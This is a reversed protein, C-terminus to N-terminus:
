NGFTSALISYIGEELTSDEEESNEDDRTEGTEICEYIFSSSQTQNMVSDTCIIEITPSYPLEDGHIEIKQRPQGNDFGTMIYLNFGNFDIYDRIKLKLTQGVKWRVSTDDVYIILNNSCVEGEVYLIALNTGQELTTYANLEDTVGRSIGMRASDTVPAEEPVLGDETQIMNFMNNLSYTTLTSNITVNNDETRIVDIGYGDTISATDNYRSVFDNVKNNIEEILATLAEQDSLGAGGLLTELYAVRRSVSSVSDMGYLLTELETVRNQLKSIESQQKNFIDITQQLKTMDDIYEQFKELLETNNGFQETMNSTPYADLKIDVKLAFSNGGNLNTTKHKPYRQIYDDSFEELFLIGYLNTVSEGTSNNTFTYYILVCNFEFDDPSLENMSMIDGYGVSTNTYFSDRFDIIYGIDGTYTNEDGPEDESTDSKDYMAQAPYDNPAQSSSQGIIYESSLSYNGGNYNDDTVSAFRVEYSSGVTSPIHLYVESYVDGGIEVTNVVDIEGIYKIVRKKVYESHNNEMDMPDYSLDGCKEYYLNSERDATEFEIGGAKRFWNFFVRESVTRLVDNNYDDDDGEGKLIATEFNFVYNQLCVPIAKNPNEGSLTDSETFRSFDLSGFNPFDLCAFHSFKFSYSENTMVRALDRQASPFTYLTGGNSRINSLLPTVM